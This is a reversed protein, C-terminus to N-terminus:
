GAMSAVEAAFDGVEKEIGEGLVFRVFGTLKVPAGLEKSANEIVDKIRTEGDVVYVQELFVVDEFYKRMRGEVMKEIIADPKGAERAQDAHVKKEREIMAQDIDATSLAVPSAAAVHMALQKGLANLKDPDASSELAVLVGIKGLGPVVAGHVYSAVVGQSVSLTAIRRLNMNEGVTAILQTLEESTQSKLADFDVGSDLAMKAAKAVFAQFTDNRSVFDTEANVELAVAKTGTSVVAVLGEAAVRDSKKAAASLGKKRLWDVAAEMDGECEVMAKKCNMMGAGTKERLAKVMSATVEAM